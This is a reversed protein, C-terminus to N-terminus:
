GNILTGLKEARDEQTKNKLFFILVKNVDYFRESFIFYDQGYKALEKTSM